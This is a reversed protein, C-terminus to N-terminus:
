GTTLGGHLLREVYPYAWNGRLVDTFSDGLHLTWTKAAGTSLTETFHVDWHLGPRQTAAPAALEFCNGGATWCDRSAGAAVTGYDATADPIPFPVAALGSFASAAGTLAAPGASPNKWTPIVLVREDPEFVGNQDSTTQASSYTDAEVALPLAAVVSTSVSATNNTTVPDTVESSVTATNSLSGTPIITITVQSSGGAALAGVACTVTGSVHNCGPSATVFTSAAPLTDVISAATVGSPGLNSATLTYTFPAGVLAPDYPETTTLALNAGSGLATSAFGQNNGSNPDYLSGTVTATTLIPGTSGTTVVISAQPFGGKAVSGFTCTVVGATHSCSPSASVFTLGAALTTTVVVNTATVPGANTVFLGYTLQQGSGVPDPTDTMSLAVDAMSVSALADIRGHGFTNNPVQSGPVGGCTQSSTRPVASQTIRAEVLDQHGIWSPMASLLLAVHGAVHPGAMSTGSWGGEYGGGPVSSRINSGPASIDPKMRGSGDVTVPGRSSYSAINDSSDTAGVSFTADYIAPPDQVSSCSSGDNGASAVVIIGAARTNEVVTKLVDPNTCGEDPPCGWSNNIVHPAKSPDPNQGALDTPAIFWQFCESYSTPTGVGVNMNRCGIWKAQPAMGIQNTGGDDGVMTGMTHTGHGHDDCPEPSNAGCTGGGSHVSDHWNYAHNATAGNWGRYHSKLASHDWDYGTDQGGVVIGQGKFGLAWVSPAGTKTINWEVANPTDPEEPLVYLPQAPLPVEPNASVRAVDSREAMARVVAQSGRVWIMNAIWYPRWEAGLRALAELVPGQTREATQQLTRVVLEGKEDKTALESAQSLDAQEALFVLFETTGASATDLVWPDVKAQWTEGTAPAEQAISCVAVLGLMVGLGVVQWRKDM